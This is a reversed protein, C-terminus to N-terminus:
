NTIGMNGHDLSLKMCGVYLELEKKFGNGLYYDSPSSMKHYEHFIEYNAIMEEVDLNLFSKLENVIEIATIINTENGQMRKMLEKEYSLIGVMLSVRLRFERSKLANVIVNLQRSM